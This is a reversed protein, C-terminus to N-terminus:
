KSAKVKITQEMGAHITCVFLYTGPTKLTRAFQGDNMTDSSYKSAKIGKPAEALTVNHDQTGRWTWIVKTGATLTKKTPKFFNDFLSVKYTPTKAQAAPIALAAATLAVALGLLLLKRM